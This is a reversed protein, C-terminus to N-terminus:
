FCILFRRILVCREYASSTRFPIVFGLVFGLITLLQNSVPVRLKVDTHESVVVAVTLKRPM